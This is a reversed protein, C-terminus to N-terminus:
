YGIKVRHGKAVAELRRLGRKEVRNNEVPYYFLLPYTNRSLPSVLEAGVVRYARGRRRDQDPQVRGIGCSQIRVDVKLALLAHNRRLTM